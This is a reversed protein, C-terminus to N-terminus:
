RLPTRRVYLGGRATRDAARARRRGDLDRRRDGRARPEGRGGPHAGRHRRDRLRRSQQSHRHPGASGARARSQEMKCEAKRLAEQTVSSISELHSRSALEPIVGGYKGHFTQSSIVNSHVQSDVIVAAATEDCSSEIALIIM